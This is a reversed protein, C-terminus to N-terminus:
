QQNSGTIIVVQLGNIEKPFYTTIGKVIEFYVTETEPEFREVYRAYEKLAKFYINDEDIYQANSLTNYFLLLILISYSKAPM